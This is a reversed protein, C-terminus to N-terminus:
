RRGFPLKRMHSDAMDARVRAEDMYDPYPIVAAPSDPNRLRPTWRRTAAEALLYGHNILVNMEPESFRDLDTRVESIVDDVLEDGYGAIAPQEPSAYSHTRSGIGWYTGQLSRNDDTDLFSAILWRKRLSGVQTGMVNVYRSLRWFLGQDAQPDFTSGGESVLVYEHRKWVPELGMNDYLGGDSLRLGHIRKDRESSHDAGGTLEEPRAGVPLPDFVPPFCSSAGVATAVDFRDDSPVLYGAQWSGVRERSFIWNV